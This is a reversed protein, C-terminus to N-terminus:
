WETLLMLITSNILSFFANTIIPIWPASDLNGFAQLEDLELLWYKENTHNFDPWSTPREIGLQLYRVGAVFDIM